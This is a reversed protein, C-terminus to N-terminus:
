KGKYHCYAAILERREVVQHGLGQALRDYNEESGVSEKWKRLMAYARDLAKQYDESIEDLHSNRLGLALGLPKWIKVTDHAIRLLETDEPAGLKFIPEKETKTVFFM